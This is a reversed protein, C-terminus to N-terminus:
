DEKTIHDSSRLCRVCLWEEQAANWQITHEAMYERFLVRLVGSLGLGRRGSWFPRVPPRASALRWNSMLLRTFSAHLTDRTVMATVVPHGTDFRRTNTRYAYAHLVVAPVAKHKAANVVRM